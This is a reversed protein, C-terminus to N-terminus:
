DNTSWRWDPRTSGPQWLLETEDLKATVWRGFVFLADSLRNLYKLIAPNIPEVRHLRLVAREARRCTTRSQHLFANLPTGGPLIFSKLPELENNMADIVEELWAADAEELKIQGPYEDGPLTALESGMDFLKQQIAQLILELKDRRESQPKQTNFSRVLGLCSNLEDVTGFGEIRPHDKPLRTGGVLGTEGTDGTRTYVKTIRVM